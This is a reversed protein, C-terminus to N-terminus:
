NLRFSRDSQEESHAFKHNDGRKIIKRVSDPFWCGGDKSPINQRNLERAIDSCTMGSQFWAFMQKRVQYEQPDIVLKKAVAKWGYPPRGFAYGGAELVARTGANCRQAITERELQAFALLVSLVCRGIPTTTDLNLNLVVLQKGAAHLKDVTSLGELASRAFRDLHSCIIGDAEDGCVFDLAKGFETREKEGSASQVEQFIAVVTHNAYDCYSRIKKMQLELSSNQQQGDSSVRCYAVLKAM